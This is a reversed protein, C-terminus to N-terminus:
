IRYLNLLADLYLIAHNYFFSLLYYNINKDIYLHHRM